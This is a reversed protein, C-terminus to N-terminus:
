RAVQTRHALLPRRRTQAVVRLGGARGVSGPGGARGGAGSVCAKLQLQYFASKSNYNLSGNLVISGNDLIRFLNMSDDTSPIVQSLSHEPSALEPYWQGESRVFGVSLSMPDFGAEVMPWSHLHKQTMYDSLGPKEGQSTYDSRHTLLLNKM